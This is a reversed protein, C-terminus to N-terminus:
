KKNFGGMRSRVTAAGLIGVLDAGGSLPDIMNNFYFSKRWGAEKIARRFILILEGSFRLHM